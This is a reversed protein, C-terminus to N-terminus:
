WRRKGKITTLIGFNPETLNRYLGMVKPEDFQQMVGQNYRIVPWNGPYAGTFDSWHKFCDNIGTPSFIDQLGSVVILQVFIHTCFFARINNDKSDDPYVPLNLKKCIVAKLACELAYPLMYAAGQWDKAKILIGATKLRTESIKRLESGTAM